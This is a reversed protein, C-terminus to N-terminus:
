FRMVVGIEQGRPGLVLIPAWVIGQAVGVPSAARDPERATAWDYIMAGLMGIGAGITGFVAGACSKSCDESSNIAAAGIGYGVGFLAVPILIRRTLTWPIRAADGHAAYVIPADALYAVGGVIPVFAYASSDSTLAAGGALLGIAGLDALMIQWGYWEGAIIRPPVSSAPIPDDAPAATARRGLLCTVVLAAAVGIRRSTSPM